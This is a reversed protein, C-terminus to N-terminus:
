ARALHNCTLHRGVVTSRFEMLRPAELGGSRDCAAHFRTPKFIPWLATEVRKLAEGDVWQLPASLVGSM